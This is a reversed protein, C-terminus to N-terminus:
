PRRTVLLVPTVTGGPARVVLSDRGPRGLANVASVTLPLDAPVDCFVVTGKDDTRQEEGEPKGMIGEGRGVFGAIWRLWVVMNGQPKETDPDVATVRVMGRDRRLRRGPCFRAALQVTTQAKLAVTETRGEALDLAQEAAPTAFVAYGPHEAVVTFHGAPLSDLRFVGSADTTTVYPTGALRVEVGPFPAGISDSLTGRVTAPSEFQRLGPGFAMGGEEIIVRIVPRTMLVPNSADTTAVYEPMRLRWRSTVWAGNALRSFRLEGGVRDINPADPLQTYTFEVSQLAFTRADLWLVGTVDASKRTPLPTFGLGILGPRNGQEEVVSFCHDRQFARSLIVEGDPAFYLADTGQQRWYGIRSLSDGSPSTFIRDYTGVMESWDDELVRLSVPDLRRSYRTISGQFLRDRQSVSAATLATKAEDWLSSIRPREDDRLVCMSGDVIRVAPLQFVLAEMEINLEKTEGAALEFPESFFRQVGILPAGSGRETITGRVVQAGASQALLVAALAGPLSFRPLSM